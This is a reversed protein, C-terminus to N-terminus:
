RSVVVVSTAREEVGDAAGDSVSIATDSHDVCCACLHRVIGCQETQSRLLYAAAPFLAVYVVGWLTCLVVFWWIPICGSGRYTGAACLGHISKGSESAADLLPLLLLLATAVGNIATYM